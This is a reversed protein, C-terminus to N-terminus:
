KRDTDELSGFGVKETPTRRHFTRTTLAVMMAALAVPFSWTWEGVGMVAVADAVGSVFERRREFMDCPILRLSTKSFTLSLRAIAASNEANASNEAPPLSILTPFPPEPELGRISQDGRERWM